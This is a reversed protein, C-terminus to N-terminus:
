RDDDMCQENRQHRSDPGLRQLKGRCDANFQGWDIGLGWGLRDSGNLFRGRRRFRINRDLHFGFNGRRWTQILVRDSQIRYTRDKRGRLGLDLRDHVFHGFARFQNLRLWWGNERIWPWRRTGLQRSDIRPRNLTDLGSGLHPRIGLQFGSRNRTNFRTRHLGANIGLHFHSGFRSHFGL